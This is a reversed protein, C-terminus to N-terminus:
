CANNIAHQDNNQEKKSKNNSKNSETAKQQLVTITSEKICEVYIYWVATKLAIGAPTKVQMPHSVEM